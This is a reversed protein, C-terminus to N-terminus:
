QTVHFTKKTQPQPAELDMPKHPERSIGPLTLSLSSAEQHTVLGVYKYPVLLYKMFNM